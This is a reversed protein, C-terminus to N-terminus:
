DFVLAGRVSVREVAALEVQRNKFCIQVKTTKWYSSVTIIPPKGIVSFRLTVKPSKKTASKENPM